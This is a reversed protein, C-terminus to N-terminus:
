FQAKILCNFHPDKALKNQYPPINKLCTFIFSGLEWVDSLSESKVKFHERDGYTDIIIEGTSSNIFLDEPNLCKTFGRQQM